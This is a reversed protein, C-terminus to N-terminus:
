QYALKKTYIELRHKKMSLYQEDNEIKAILVVLAWALCMEDKNQIHISSRKNAPRKELNIESRKTGTGKILMEVHIINVNVSGDLRFSRNSQVVGEFESLIRDSTLRLLSM